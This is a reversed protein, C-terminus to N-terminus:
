ALNHRAGLEVLDEPSCKALAGISSRVPGRDPRSPRPDVLDALPLFGETDDPAFGLHRVDDLGPYQEVDEPVRCSGADEVALADHEEGVVQRSEADDGTPAARRARQAKHASAHRGVGQAAAHHQEDSPHLAAAIMCIPRRALLWQAVVRDGQLELRWQRHVAAGCLRLAGVM